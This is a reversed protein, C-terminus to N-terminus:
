LYLLGSAAAHAMLTNAAQKTELTLRTENLWDCAVRRPGGQLLNMYKLAQLLDGRDVFYRARNLIDYTDLKSYDFPKNQLEDQSIPDDPKLIFLSQLYSLFYIPLSAGGEPVLALKRAVREVNIFRERLADETFVGRESATSPLNRIVVSVLEDGEAVKSIAKIESKLPRLKNRWHEGPEGTSVTAWLSQCAAWLAQAQHASREAAARAKLEDDIEQLAADMGRMKGVMAALQLKYNAKETALKDELERTFSRKMESEKMALADNLHDIHAEAQRKLQQRLQKESDARIQFIKKQNEIALKRKEAELHYDLQAKVAESDSDGRFAEVARKLRLEGDTQLRQLEKQYALVHSYAHMIFLDLDEKSLNLKQDSLNLGPFISEIEEVFYNRAKEVNRWYKESMTALDKHQYLEDKVHNIHELLSKIKKRITVIQEHNESTAAKSLAIECKEIKDIAERASKEATAVSTDRASTRNRLSTWISTDVNEIADDVVKRVDNNFGKLIGIAKNYEKVALAAAVEVASELDTVDRPLPEPQKQIKVPESPKATAPKSAPPAEKVTSAPVPKPSSSTKPQVDSQKTSPKEAGGFWGTVTSTASEVTKSVNDFQKRVGDFQKNIDAIPDQSDLAVKLVYEAGPVNQEVQKRFKPDYKAYGIVGGAAVLPSLFVLVKGFGAQRVNPPLGNSYNKRSYQSLTIQVVDRCQRKLALRYM